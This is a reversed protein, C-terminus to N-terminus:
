INKLTFIADEFIGDKCFLEVVHEIDLVLFNNYYESKCIKLTRKKISYKLIGKFNNSFTELIKEEKNLYLYPLIYQKPIGEKTMTHIKVINSILKVLEKNKSYTIYKKIKKNKTDKNYFKLDFLDKYHHKTIFQTLFIDLSQSYFMYEKNKYKVYFDSIKTNYNIEVLSPIYYTLKKNLCIALYAFPFDLVSYKSLELSLLSELIHLFDKQM